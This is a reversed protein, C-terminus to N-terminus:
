AGGEPSREYWARRGATAAWALGAIGGLELLTAALQGAASLTALLAIDAMESGALLRGALFGTAWRALSGLLLLSSGVLARLSVGRHRGLTLLAWALVALWPLLHAQGLAATM